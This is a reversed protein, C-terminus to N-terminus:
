YHVCNFSEQRLPVKFVLITGDVAKGNVQRLSSMGDFGVKLGM